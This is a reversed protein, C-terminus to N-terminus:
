HMNPASMVWVVFPTTAYTFVGTRGKVNDTAGPNKISVLISAILMGSMGSTRLVNQRTINGDCEKRYTVIVQCWLAM